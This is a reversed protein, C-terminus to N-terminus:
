CRRGYAVMCAYWGDPPAECMVGVGDNRMGDYWVWGALGADFGATAFHAGKHYLVAIPKYGVQLFGGGAVPLDVTTAVGDGQVRVQDPISEELRSEPAEIHLFPPAEDATTWASEGRAQGCAAM